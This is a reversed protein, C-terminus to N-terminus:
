FCRKLASELDSGQVAASDGGTTCRDVLIVGRPFTPFFLVTDQTKIALDLLMPARVARVSAYGLYENGHFGLLGDTKGLVKDICAVVAAIREESAYSINLGPASSIPGTWIVYLPPVLDWRFDGECLRQGIASNVAEVLAPGYRERHLRRQREAALAQRRARLQERVAEDMEAWHHQKRPSPRM